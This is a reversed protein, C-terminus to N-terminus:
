DGEWFDVYRTLLKVEFRERHGAVYSELPNYLSEIVAGVPTDELDLKKYFFAAPGVRTRGGSPLLRAPLRLTGRAM